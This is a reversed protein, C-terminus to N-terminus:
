ITQPQLSEELLETLAKDSIVPAFDLEYFSSRTLGELWIFWLGKNDPFIGAEYSVVRYVKGFQPLAYDIVGGPRYNVAKDYPAIPKVEQGIKFRQPAM